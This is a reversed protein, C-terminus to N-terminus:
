RGPARDTDAQGAPWRPSSSTASRHERAHREEVGRIARLEDPTRRRASPSASSPWTPCSSARRCTRTPPRPARALRRGGPRRQPQPGPAHPRGQPALWRTTPIARDPRAPHAAGRVRRAGVVLRGGARAPAVAPRAPRAPPRRRRRRVSSTAGVAAPAALGDAPRGQAAEPRARRRAPQRAVAHRPRPLRRGAPHRVAAGPLTGCAAAAGGPGAPRRPARGARARRAADALPACTSPSRTSSPSMTEAVGAAGPRAAPLLHARPPVRHRPRLRTRRSASAVVEALSAEDAVWRAPGTVHGLEGEVVERGSDIWALTGGAVNVHTSAAPRDPIARPRPQSRRQPLDRAARRERWSAWASRCRTLPILVAGAVHAEGYEDPQRVDLLKAGSALRSPWSTSALDRPDDHHRLSDPCTLQAPERQAARGPRRLAVEVVDLGAIRWTSAGTGRRRVAADLTDLGASRALRRPAAAPSRHAPVARPTPQRPRGVVAAVGRRRRDPLDCALVVVVDASSTTPARHRVGASRARGPRTTPSPRDLGLAPSRTVPRRRRRGGRRGRGAAPAAAVRAVM